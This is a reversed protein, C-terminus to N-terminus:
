RLLDINDDILAQITHLTDQTVLGPFLSESMAAFPSPVNCFRDIIGGAADVPVEAEDALSLMARRDLALAEGMVGMQHYGGPGECFTM